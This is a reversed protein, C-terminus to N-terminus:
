LDDCLVLLELPVKANNAKYDSAETHHLDRMIILLVDFYCNIPRPAEKSIEERLQLLFIVNKVAGIELEM